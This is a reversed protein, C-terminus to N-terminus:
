LITKIPIGNKAITLYFINRIHNDRILFDIIEEVHYKAVEESIVITKLHAMYPFDAIELSTNSFAESISAGSGYAFFVKEDTEVNEKNQTNLIEFSVNFQNQDYDISIGSVLAMDNLETYDFCGTCGLLIFLILIVKKM